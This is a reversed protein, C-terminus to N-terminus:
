QAHIVDKRLHQQALEKLKERPLKGNSNRPLRDLLVIPRPLFLADIRERLAALLAAREMGPAVVFAMLRTVAHDAGADDPMFFAGDLVGPVANLQHDLYGMSSRKGAINVLDATRGHLLFRDASLLEIEDALPTPQEVHGGSACTRGDTATLAIGPLLLWPAGQTTRRSAIQGTETSGYIELLPAGMRAEVAAALQHPMPATASLVLDPRPLELRSALLAKLHIPTTVLLCPRSSAAVAACVDAPFFPHSDTIAGGSQLALLVSSEFGYMHQPAVTAVISHCRELVGLRVAEARASGVIAGWSKRHPVPSGTSGSTFVIAALQGAAIHPIEYAAAHRTGGGSHRQMADAWALQPLDLCQPQDVLCFVDPAFSRVRRVMEPTLTPPLLSVKGTLLAAALGVAFRYRNAAANLVHGGPPLAAALQRTDALFQAATVPEGGSWALVDQAGAHTILPLCNM